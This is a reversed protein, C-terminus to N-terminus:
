LHMNEKKQIAKFEDFSIIRPLNKIHEPYEDVANELIKRVRRSSVGNSKAIFKLSLNYNRKKKRKGGVKLIKYEKLNLSKELKKM